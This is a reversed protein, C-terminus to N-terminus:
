AVFGIHVHDELQSDTQEPIKLDCPYLTYVKEVSSDESGYVRSAYNLIANEALNRCFRGNGNEPHGAAIQCVATLTEKAEASVTFGRKEAELETISVMEEASYDAFGITFPVRSRLGPNRLFFEKMEDPYGAFVVVTDQRNNEMEQVMTNIAEDGFDGKRSELLSYAEDIFLLKGKARNFVNKVKDATQGVYKAILDARGVEVIEGSKLLGIEHLIGAIIRAVTTKATGPNGIFVMNLVIPETRQDRSEMDQKMRVFATIKRIQEKVNELGILSDLMETYCPAPEEPADPKTKISALKEKVEEYSKRGLNRVCMLEEDTKELLEAVTHIGARRLCNYARVSLDMDEIYIPEFDEDLETDDEEFCLSDDSELDIESLEDFVDTELPRNNMMYTLIGTMFGPISESPLFNVEDFLPDTDSVERVRTDPVAFSLMTQLRLSMAEPLSVIIMGLGQGNVILRLDSATQRLIATAEVINEISGSSAGDESCSQSESDSLILAYTKKAATRANEQAVPSYATACDRFIWDYDATTVARDAAAYAFARLKGAGDAELQFCLYESVSLMKAASMFRESAKRSVPNSEDTYLDANPSVSLEVRDSSRGFASIINNTKM